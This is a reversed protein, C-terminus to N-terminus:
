AQLGLASRVEDLIAPDDITSPVRYERGDAIARVTARLIKGSRTKGVGLRRLGGAFRAVEGRLERYTFRRQRGTVPSDCILALQDARGVDVHRDLANFCTNLVGDTFWRYLPPNSDDLVRAPPRIWDIAKAAEGWFRPVPLRL